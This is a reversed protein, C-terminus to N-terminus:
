RRRKAHVAVVRAIRHFHLPGMGVPERDDLRDVRVIRRHGVDDGVPLPCRARDADADHQRLLRPAVAVRGIRAEVADRARGYLVVKRDVDQAPAVEVRARRQDVAVGIRAEDDVM